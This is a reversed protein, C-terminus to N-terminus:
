LSQDVRDSQRLPGHVAQHPPLLHGGESQGPHVAPGQLVDAGHVLQSAHVALVVAVLTMVVVTLPTAAVDVAYPKCTAAALISGSGLCPAPMCTVAPIPATNPAATTPIATPKYSDTGSISHTTMIEHPTNVFNAPVLAHHSARTKLTKNARLQKQKFVMAQCTRWTHGIM